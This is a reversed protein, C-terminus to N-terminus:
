HNLEAVRSKHVVLTCPLSVIERTLPPNYPRWGAENSHELFVFGLKMSIGVVPTLDWPTSRSANMVLGNVEGKWLRAFNLGISGGVVNGDKFVGGSVCLRQVAKPYRDPMDRLLLYSDHLRPREVETLKTTLELDTIRHVNDSEPRYGYIEITNIDGVWASEVVGNCVFAIMTGVESSQGRVFAKTGDLPDITIYREAEPRAKLEGEEAVVGWDPFCEQAVRLYAIQAARDASTVIDDTKGTASTKAESQFTLRQRRVENMARRVAEKGIIGIASATLKGYNNM